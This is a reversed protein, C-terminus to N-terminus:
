NKARNFYENNRGSKNNDIIINCIKHWTKYRRKWHGLSQKNYNGIKLYITIHGLLLTM